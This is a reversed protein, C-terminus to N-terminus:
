NKTDGGIEVGTVKKTNFATTRIHTGAQLEVPGAAQAIHLGVVSDANQASTEILGNISIKNSKAQEMAQSLAEEIKCLLDLIIDQTIRMKESEVADNRGVFIKGLSGIPDSFAGFLANLANRNLVKNRRAQFRESIEQEINEKNM